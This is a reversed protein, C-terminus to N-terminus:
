LYGHGGTLLTHESTQNRVDWIFISGNVAGSAVFGGGPSVGLRNVPGVRFYPSSFASAITDMRLDLLRVLHDRALTLFVNPQVLRVSVIAASSGGLMNEGVSTNNAHQLPLPLAGQGTLIIEKTLTGGTVDWVRIKGDLHGSVMMSASYDGPAVDHCASYAFLTKVCCEKSVDWVKLTRDASGSLVLDERGSIVVGTVKGV